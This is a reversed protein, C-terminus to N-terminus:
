ASTMVVLRSGVDLIDGVKVFLKAIKGTIPACIRIEMKMAEICILEKGKEVVDGEKVECRWCRGAVESKVPVGGTVEEEFDNGRELLLDPEYSRSLEELVGMEKAAKMRREVMEERDNKVSEVLQECAELDLVGEEVRVLNDGIGAERADDLVKEEVEFFKIRDFVEFMWAEERGAARDRFRNWIPVTRGVLQYGGPSDMGYVCLYQGGIGVTGEPTFSRPPSYKTGFLRHRPDLPVACPAGFFVDGLGLVLFTASLITDPIDSRSSLGNINQLFDINNPLYPATSRITRSYRTVAALTSTHEFVIPLHLTRSPVSQPLSPGLSLDLTTLLTIIKDQPASPTYSVHLSRVGPTLGLIEPYPTLALQKILSHIHFSTRLDFTESGFELLLASDGAQRCIIKRGFHEIRGVVPDVITSPLISAPLNTLTSISHQLEEGLTIAQSSTIPCLMVEDGPTMQGIKWMESTIVTAFVIFGGLSPGDCTLIVAEDGTFSISGISYPSDHINSPHLGAEGGDKRAWNPKPGVLKVGIRNSNYHVKWPKTFFSQFDEKAFFDPDAHPGAMVRLTWPQSQVPLLLPKSLPAEVQQQFQRIPLIDDKRLERGSLGGLHGLAFTARSGFVKPAQIGGYVALYTRLGSKPAALSLTQGQAVSVATSLPIVAGDLKHEAPPGVVAITTSCLFRLTPGTSTCELGANKTDNGLIKNAIRFSYNDMPGSPPVGIKWYGTRGPFDQITTLSGPDLVQIAAPYFEFNNLTTTSYKAGVFMDSKVIHRLYELNTDVGWIHAAELAAALKKVADARDTGTVIIKALLPDFSPSIRTGTKIWTDIRAEAPFFVDLIQGTSPKFDSLPNEAYIRVELAHGTLALADEPVASFLRSPSKSAVNIMEEVLDYGSVAETVPHEVQLRTNVELFFYGETKSDYIFEVTGVNRYKLNKALNVAAECMQQYVEGPINLPPSEEIVKQHRRQLSCDRAGIHRVNGEGDGIVQVEIHRANEVFYELFIGDDNFYKQGQQQISAFLSKVGEVSNCKELGIGGGGATSKMMLPYGIREGESIAEEVSKLIKSGPLLPVNSEEALARALHKLGLTRMQHPTPGIWIMGSEECAEAFDAHESLFGYGPIIADADVSRAASTIQTPSLYTEAVTDGKLLISTDADLVHQSNRDEKSYVAVAYIGLKKLTAVIRVAIEGRNAVLVKNITRQALTSTSSSPTQQEMKLTQNNLFNRWGGFHSIDQSVAAPNDNIFAFGHVWSADALEVEGIFLPAPISRSFKSVEMTPINWVELEISSGQNSGSSVRALGPKRIAAGPPSALEFLRYSRSSTTKSLLKGEIITLQHNLPLGSLHAGVVALPTLLKQKSNKAATSFKFRTNGLPRSRESLFSRSLDLLKDEEWPTSILTLGFPLGDSRFGAPFSLASWDMFNVFNTYTGLRSNEEVPENALDKITPFTPTTPVLIADYDKFATEIGRTLDRRLYEAEFVDVSSFGEAKRIISRVVPDMQINPKKIFDKIAAFREAVWPGEYLLSALRFLSTFDTPILEWGLTSCKELATDYAVQQETKGFWPPNDCVAIRPNRIRTYAPHTAPVPRSFADKEDYVSAIQLVLQADETTLALISVCDLSRCAPVVGRASLLGRTPKLGVVNNLGAPVRGSGATDTGLAFPVIGRAVVSASGSSSGGSIYSKDFTNPVIGYPSRTGVLGTAFQDLNTKGIVIAGAKRLVAIVGADEVANYAFDPCAATTIFGEVDINDKAAFPVGYLPLLEGQAELDLLQKWQVRLQDPSAISIWAVDSANLSHQLQLLRDLGDGRAQHVIWDTITLPRTRHCSLYSM